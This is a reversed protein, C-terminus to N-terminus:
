TSLETMKEAVAELLEIVELIAQSGNVVQSVTGIEFEPSFGVRLFVPVDTSTLAEVMRQVDENTM